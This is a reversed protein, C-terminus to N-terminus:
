AYLRAIRAPSVGLGYLALCALNRASRRWWGDRRWREASTVAEVDLVRMRSRGIRRVLDVDEMLPLARFGGLRDYLRRSVLLGQDGYPLGLLRVRLRVGAEIVRAQWSEDDLRFTFCTAESPNAAIHQGVAELWSEELLTDAHLFLLWAGKAAAAGQRMQEGRGRPAEIVTAGLAAALAPTGDSSGGDVVIVDDAGRLRALCAGLSAGADLAPIVVSLLPQSLGFLEGRGARLLARM